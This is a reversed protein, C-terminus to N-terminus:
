GPMECSTTQIYTLYVPHSYEVNIYKKGIKFWITTGHTTRVIAEQVRPKEPSLNLHDPLKMDKLIKQLKNHDSCDFTKTYDIFCFYINKQFKKAKEMIWHINAM